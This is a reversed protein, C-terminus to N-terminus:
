RNSSFVELAISLNLHTAPMAKMTKGLFEISHHIKLRHSELSVIKKEIIPILDTAQACKDLLFLIEKIEELKFGLNKASIIIRVRTIEDDGYERFPGSVKTPIPLLKKRQYFRITEVNINLEKALQGITYKKSMEIKIKRLISDAAYQYQTLKRNPEDKKNLTRAYEIFFYM